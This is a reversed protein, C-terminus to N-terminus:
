HRGIFLVGRPGPNMSQSSGSPLLPMVPVISDLVVLKVEAPQHSISPDM